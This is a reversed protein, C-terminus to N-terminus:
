IANRFAIKADYLDKELNRLEYLNSTMNRRNFDVFNSKVDYWGTNYKTLYEDSYIGVKSDVTSYDIFPTYTFSDIFFKGSEFQENVSSYDIGDESMEIRNVISKEGFEVSFLDRFYNKSETFLNSSFDQLFIRDIHDFPTNFSDIM